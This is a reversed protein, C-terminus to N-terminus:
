PFAKLFARYLRSYSIGWNMGHIDDDKGWAEVHAFEHVLVDIAHGETLSKNIRILFHDDRRLCLGDYGALPTRRVRVPVKCKCSSRLHRVAQRFTVM